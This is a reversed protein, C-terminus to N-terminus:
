NFIPSININHKIKSISLFTTVHQLHGLGLSILARQRLKWDMQNRPPFASRSVSSHPSHHNIKWSPFVKYKTHVFIYKNRKESLISKQKKSKLQLWSTQVRSWDSFGLHRSSRPLSFQVWCRTALYYHSKEIKM